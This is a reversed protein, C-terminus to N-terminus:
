SRSQRQAGLVREAERLMEPQNGKLGFIYGKQAQASLRANAESCFGADISYIEILAAYTAELVGFVEAFMGSENTAARILVQDIAPKSVASILVTRVARVQAYASREKHHVIQAQPAHAAAVPGTWLTKNDVAVVGCPLGSPELSKSRWQTRTQAHLQRRLAEVGEASFKGVFDYLTSDPIRRDFGCETMTEVARLSGRNTLFGWLLAQLLTQCPWRRGQAQRPDAVFRNSNM